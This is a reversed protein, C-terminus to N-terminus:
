SLTFKLVISAIHIALLYIESVVALFVLNLTISKNPHLIPVLPHSTRQLHRDELLMFHM